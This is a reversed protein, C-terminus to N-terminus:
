SFKLSCGGGAVACCRSRFLLFLVAGRSPVVALLWLLWASSCSWWVSPAVLFGVVFSSSIYMMLRALVLVAFGLWFHLFVLFLVLSIASFEATFRRFNLM